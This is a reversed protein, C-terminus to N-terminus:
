LFFHSFFRFSHPFFSPLFVRSFVYPWEFLCTKMFTLSLFIMSDKELYRSYEWENNEGYMIYHIYNPRGGILIPGLLNPVKEASHIYRSIKENSKSGRRIEKNAFRFIKNYNTRPLSELHYESTKQFFFTM